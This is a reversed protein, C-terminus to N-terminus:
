NNYNMCASSIAVHCTPLAPVDTCIACIWSEDVAEVFRDTSYKIQPGDSVQAAHRKNREDDENEEESEDDEDEEHGWLNSSDDSSESDSM